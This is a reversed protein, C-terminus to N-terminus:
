HTPKGFRKRFRKELPPAVIAGFGTMAMGLLILLVAPWQRRAAWYAGVAALGIGGVLYILSTTWATAKAVGGYRMVGPFLRNPNEGLEVEHLTFRVGLATAIAQGQARARGPDPVSVPGSPLSILAEPLFALVRRGGPSGASPCCLALAGADLVGGRAAIAVTGFVWVLEQVQGPQWGVQLQFPTSGPAKSTMATPEWTLLGDNFRLKSNTVAQQRKSMWPSSPPSWSLEGGISTGGGQVSWHYSFARAQASTQSSWLLVAM